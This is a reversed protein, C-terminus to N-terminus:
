IAKFKFKWWLISVWAFLPAYYTLISLFINTLFFCLLKMRLHPLQSLKIHYSLCSLHNVCTCIYVARCSSLQFSSKSNNSKSYEWYQVTCPSILIIPYCQKSMCIYILKRNTYFMSWSYLNPWKRILKLYQLISM